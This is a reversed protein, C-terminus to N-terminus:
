NKVSSKFLLKVTTGKESNLIEMNGNHAFIIQRALSLGIGSGGEKTSYFPLFVKNIISDDIGSGNDQLEIKIHNNSQIVDIYIENAQAEISNKILNIFVLEILDKDGSIIVSSNFSKHEIKIHQKTYGAIVIEIIDYLNIQKLEPVPIDLFQRFKKIFNQLNTIRNNLLNIGRVADTIDKTQVESVKKERGELTLCDKLTDTTTSMPTLTNMIEHSLVKIIGNWSQLEYDTMERDIDHFTYIKLTENDEKIESLTILIRRTIHNIHLTIIQQGGTKLQNCDGLLKFVSNRLEHPKTYKELALINKLAQNYIRIDNTDEEIALIGTGIRELLIHLLNEKRLKESELKTFEKKIKSLENTLGGFLHDIKKSSLNLSTNKEKLHILFNSLDRNVKSAYRIFLVIQLIFLCGLFLSTFIWEPKLAFFALLLANAALLVSRIIINLVYRNFGM